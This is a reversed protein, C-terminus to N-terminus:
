KAFSLDAPIKVPLGRELAAKHQRLRQLDGALLGRGFVQEIHLVGRYVEVQKILKDAGSKRGLWQMEKALWQLPAHPSELAASVAETEAAAEAYAHTGPCKARLIAEIRHLDDTCYQALPRSLPFAACRRNHLRPTFDMKLADKAPLRGGALFRQPVSLMARAMGLRMQPSSFCLQVDVVSASAAGIGGTGPSKHRLTTLDGDAGWILKTVHRATMVAAVVAAGAADRMDVLLGLEQTNAADPHTRLDAYYNDRRGADGNDDNPQEGASSSSSSSSAAVIASTPLFQAVSLEGGFGPQEGEFDALLVLGRPNTALWALVGQALRDFVDPPCAPMGAIFLGAASSSLTLFPHGISSHTTFNSLEAPSLLDALAAALTTCPKASQQQPLLAPAAAAAAAADATADTAEAPGAAKDSGDGYTVAAPVCPDDLAKEENEQDSCAAAGAGEAVSLESLANALSEPTDAM